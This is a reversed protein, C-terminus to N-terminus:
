SLGEIENRLWNEIGAQRLNEVFIERSDNTTKTDAEAKEASKNNINAVSKNVDIESQLKALQMAYGQAAQNNARIQASSPTNGGAVSGMTGTSGGAGSMGYMLAPNLGAEKLRKMNAEPSTQQLQYDYQKKQIEAQINAMDSYQNVADKKLADNYGTIEGIGYSLQENLGSVLESGAQIALTKGFAESSRFIYGLNHTSMEYAHM